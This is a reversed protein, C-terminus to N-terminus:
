RPLTIFCVYLSCIFAASNYVATQVLNDGAAIVRVEGGTQKVNAITAEERAVSGDMGDSITTTADQTGDNQM